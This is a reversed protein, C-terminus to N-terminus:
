VKSGLNRYEPSVEISSEREFKLDRMAAWSRVGIYPLITYFFEARRDLLRIRPLRTMIWLQFTCDPPTCTPMPREFTVNGRMDVMPDGFDPLRPPLDQQIAAGGNRLMIDRVEPFGASAFDLSKLDAFLSAARRRQYVSDVYLFLWSGAISILLLRAVWRLTSRFRRPANVRNARNDIM